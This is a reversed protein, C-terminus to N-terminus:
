ILQFKELVTVAEPLVDESDLRHGIADMGLGEPARRTDARKAMAERQNLPLAVIELHANALLQPDPM